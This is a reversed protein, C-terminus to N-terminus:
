LNHVVRDVASSLRHEGGGLGTHAPSVHVHQRLPHDKLVQDLGPYQLAVNVLYQLLPEACCEHGVAESMEHYFKSINRM